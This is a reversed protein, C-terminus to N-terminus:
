FHTNLICDQWVGTFAENAGLPTTTTNDTCIRNVSIVNLEGDSTAVVQRTEATGSVSSHAILAPNANPDLRAEQNAM